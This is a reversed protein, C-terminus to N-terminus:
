MQVNINTNLYCTFYIIFLVYLPTPLPLLLQYITVIATSILIQHDNSKM